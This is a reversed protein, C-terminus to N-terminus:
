LGIPSYMAWGPRTTMITRIQHHLATVAWRMENGRENTGIQSLAHFPDRELTLPVNFSTECETQHFELLSYNFKQHLFANIGLRNEGFEVFSAMDKPGYSEPHALYLSSAFVELILM